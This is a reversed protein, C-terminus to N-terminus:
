RCDGKKGLPMAILLNKDSFQGIELTTKTKAALLFLTIKYM